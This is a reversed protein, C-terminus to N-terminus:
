KRNDEWPWERQGNIYNCATTVDCWDGCFYRGPRDGNLYECRRLAEELTRHTRRLRVRRVADCIYYRREPM